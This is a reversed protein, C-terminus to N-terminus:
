DGAKVVLTGIMTPHYRCYFTALEPKELPQEITEGAPIVIEWGGEVTATHDFPDNNIWKIVDGQEATIISPLYALNEVRVEITRAQLSGAGAILAVLSYGALRKLTLM